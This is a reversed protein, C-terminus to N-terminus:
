TIHLWPSPRPLLSDARIMLLTSWQRDVIVVNNWVIAKNTSQVRLTEAHVTFLGSHNFHFM